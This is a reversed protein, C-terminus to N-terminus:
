HLARLYSHASQIKCLQSVKVLAKLKKVPMNRPTSVNTKTQTSCWHFRHRRVTLLTHSKLLVSSSCTVIGHIGLTGTQFDKM